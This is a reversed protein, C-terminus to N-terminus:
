VQAAYSYWRPPVSPLRAVQESPPVGLEEGAGEAEIGEDGHGSPADDESRTTSTNIYMYIYIYIYIYIDGIIMIYVRDPIYCCCGNITTTCPSPLLDEIRCSLMVEEGVLLSWNHKIPMLEPM